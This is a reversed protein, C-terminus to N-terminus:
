LVWSAYIGQLIASQHMDLGLGSKGHVRVVPLKKVLVHTAHPRFPSPIYLTIETVRDGRGM